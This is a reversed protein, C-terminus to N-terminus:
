TSGSSLAEAPAAPPGSRWCGPPFEDSFTAALAIPTAGTNGLTLTLTSVDGSNITGPAFAKGITPAATAATAFGCLCTAVVYALWRM